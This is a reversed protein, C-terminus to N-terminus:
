ASLWSILAARESGVISACITSNPPKGTGIVIASRWINMALSIPLHPFTIPVLTLWALYHQRKAQNVKQACNPHPGRSWCRLNPGSAHLAALGFNRVSMTGFKCLCGGAARSTLPRCCVCLYRFPGFIFGVIGRLPILRRMTSEASVARATRYPNSRVAACACNCTASVGM